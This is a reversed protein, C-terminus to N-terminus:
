FVIMERDFDTRGTVHGPLALAAKENEGRQVFKQQQELLGDKKLIDRFTKKKQVSLPLDAM